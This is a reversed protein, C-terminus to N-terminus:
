GSVLGWMIIGSALYPLFIQMPTGFILGFVLGITTITVAMGITIWLQGLASRRYSQRVDQWGLTLGIRFM